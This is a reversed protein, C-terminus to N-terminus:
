RISLFICVTKALKRRWSSREKGSSFELFTLSHGTVTHAQSRDGWFDMLLHSKNDERSSILGAKIARRALWKATQKSLRPVQLNDFTLWVCLIHTNKSLKLELRQEGCTTKEDFSSRSPPSWCVLRIRLVSSAMWSSSTATSSVPLSCCNPTKLSKSKRSTSNSSASTLAMHWDKLHRGSMQPFGNVGFSSFFILSFWLLYKMDIYNMCTSFQVFELWLIYHFGFLSRSQLRKKKIFWYKYATFVLFSIKKASSPEYDTIEWSKELSYHRM